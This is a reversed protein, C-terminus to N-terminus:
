SGSRWLRRRESKRRHGSIVNAEREPGDEEWKEGPVVRPQFRPNLQRSPDDREDPPWVEGGYENTVLLSDIM